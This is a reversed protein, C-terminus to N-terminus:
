PEPRTPSDGRPAQRQPRFTVTRNLLFQVLAVVGVSVIKVALSPFGLHLGIALLAASLGLGLLGVTLFTAFRVMTRDHVTFTFRRNLTFSLTIGTLVGAVNASQAPVRTTTVLVWFLSTDVTACFAGIVGYSVMQRLLTGRLRTEGPTTQAEDMM